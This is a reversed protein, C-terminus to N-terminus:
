TPWDNVREHRDLARADADAWRCWLGAIVFYVAGMAESSLLAGALASGAGCSIARWPAGTRKWRRAANGIQFLGSLVACVGFVRPLGSALTMIFIQRVSM